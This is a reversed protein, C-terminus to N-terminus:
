KLSELYELLSLLDEGAFSMSPMNNGPKVHQSDIIWGARWGVTNPATAAALTSRGAFHTLDPGTRGFADTGTIAHCMACPGHVFLDRGRRARDSAPEPAPKRQTKLWAEFEARPEAVVILGMLAHAHGCFEACQGRFVGPRDASIAMTSPRLPILDRKGALNPIWLSHIVDSSRLNLEVPRGVPIHLENATTVYESPAGDRYMIEWWFQHGVVDIHLADRGAPAPLSRGTALDAWLLGFLIVITAIAGGAVVRAKRRDGAPTPNRHSVVLALATLVMVIVWVAGLVVLFIWFLEGARAAEPGAADLASQSPAIM